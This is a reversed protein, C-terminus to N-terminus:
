NLRKAIARVFAEPPNICSEPPYIGFAEQKNTFLIFVLSLFYHVFIRTFISVSLGTQKHPVKSFIKEAFSRTEVASSSGYDVLKSVIDSPSSAEKALYIVFKM